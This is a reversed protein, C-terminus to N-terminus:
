SCFFSPTHTKSKVAKLISLWLRPVHLAAAKRSSDTAYRRELSERLWMSSVQNNGTEFAERELPRRVPDERLTSLQNDKSENLEDGALSQV